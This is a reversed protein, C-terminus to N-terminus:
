ETAALAERMLNTDPLRGFWHEYSLAGQWLLMGLGNDTLCGRAEAARRLPTDHPVIDCVYQGPRLLAPDLPLADGERLGLSTANVILEAETVRDALAPDGFSACRINGHTLPALREAMMSLEPKPRNVLTLAPCGELACQCALASGAGGCAGLILVRLSALPRTKKEQIARSFGPGDTNFGEWSGDRNLRLTNVAGCLKSLSDTSACAEYAQKKFPVTVNAGIFHLDALRRLLASFDEGETGCLLRVYRLARGDADLAAQQMQPSRSHAIPNGIVGLRIPASTARCAKELEDPCIYPNM